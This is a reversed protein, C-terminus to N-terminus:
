FSDIKRCQTTRGPCNDYAPSCEPVQHLIEADPVEAEYPSLLIKEAEMFGIAVKAGRLSVLIPGDGQRRIMTVPAGPTFGMAALRSIFGKGGGLRRVMGQQGTELDILRLLEHNIM